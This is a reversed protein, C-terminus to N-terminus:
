PMVGDFEDGTAREWDTNSMVTRSGPGGTHAEERGRRYRNMEIALADVARQLAKRGNTTSDVNEHVFTQTLTEAYAANKKVLKEYGGRLDVVVSHTLDGPVEPTAFLGGNKLLDRVDKTSYTWNGSFLDYDDREKAALQHGIDRLTVLQNNRDMSMLVDITHQGAELLRVWIDQQLDRPDKIIGPWKGAVTFAAQQVLPALTKYTTDDM